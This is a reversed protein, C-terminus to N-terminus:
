SGEIIQVFIIHFKRVRDSQYTTTYIQINQAGKKCLFKEMKIAANKGYKVTYCM